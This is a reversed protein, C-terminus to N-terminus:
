VIKTSTTTTNSPFIQNQIPKIVYDKLPKLCIGLVGLSLATTAGSLGLIRDAVYFIGATGLIYSGTLAIQDYVNPTQSFSASTNVIEFAGMQLGSSCNKTFNELKEYATLNPIIIKPLIVKPIVKPKTDLKSIIKKAFDMLLTVLFISGFSLIILAYKGVKEWTPDEAKPLVWRTFLFDQNNTSVQSISLM